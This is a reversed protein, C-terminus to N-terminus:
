KIFKFYNNLDYNSNHQQNNGIIFNINNNSFTQALVKKNGECENKRKNQSNYNKYNNTSNIVKKNNNNNQKDDIKLRNNTNKIKSNNSSIKNPIKVFLLQKNNSNIFNGIFNKKKLIGNKNRDFSNIITYSDNLRAFHKTIRINKQENSNTKIKRIDNSLCTENHKVLEPFKSIIGKKDKRMHEKIKTMDILDTMLFLSNNNNKSMKSYKNTKLNNSKKSEKNTNSYNPTAYKNKNSINSINQKSNSRNSRQREFFLDNPQMINFYNINVNKIKFGTNITSNKLLTSSSSIQPHQKNNGTINNSNYSNNNYNMDNKIRKRINHNYSHDKIFIQKNTNKNNRNNNSSIFITNLNSPSYNLLKKYNNKNSSNKEYKHFNYNQYINNNIKFNQCKKKRIKLHDKFIDIDKKPNNIYKKGNGKYLNRQDSSNQIQENNFSFLFKNNKGKSMEKVTRYKKLCINDNNLYNIDTSCIEKTNHRSYNIYENNSNNKYINKDSHNNSRKKVNKQNINGKSYSLNKVNKENTYNFNNRQKNLKSNTIYNNEYLNSNNKNKFNNNFNQFDKIKENNISIMVEQDHNSSNDSINKPSNLYESQLLSDYFIDQNQQYSNKNLDNKSYNNCIYPRHQKVFTSNINTHNIDDSIKNYNQAIANKNLLINNNNNNYYNGNQEFGNNNKINELDTNNKNINMKHFSPKIEKRFKIIKDKNENNRKAPLSININLDNIKENINKNSKNDFITFSNAYIQYKKEDLNTKFQKYNNENILMIIIKFDNNLPFGNKMVPPNLIVIGPCNLLNNNNIILYKNKDNINNNIIIKEVKRKKIDPEIKFYLQQDNFKTYLLIDKIKKTIQIFEESQIIQKITDNDKQVINNNKLSNQFLHIFKEIFTQSETDIFIKNLHEKILPRSIKEIDNIFKKDNVPINLSLCVKEYIERCLDSILKDMILIMESIIHFIKEPESEFDIFADLISVLALEEWTKKIENKVPFNTSTNFNNNDFNNSKNLMCLQEKNKIKLQKKLEECQKKLAEIKKDKEKLLDNDLNNICHNNKLEYSKKKIDNINKIFNFIVERKNNEKLNCNNEM